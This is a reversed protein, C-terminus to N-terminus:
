ALVLSLDALSVSLLLLRSRESLHSGQVMMRRLLTISSRHRAYHSVTLVDKIRLLVEAAACNMTCGNCADHAPGNESLTRAFGRGGQGVFGDTLAVSASHSPLRCGKDRMGSPAAIGEQEHSSSDTNDKSLIVRNASIVRCVGYCLRIQLKRLPSCVKQTALNKSFPRRQLSM